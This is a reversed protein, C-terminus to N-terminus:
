SPRLKKGESGVLVYEGALGPELTGDDRLMWPLANSRPVTVVAPVDLTGFVWDWIPTTVGHNLRPRSFHHHLHHRRAWRGYAGFGRHTHLRRHIAEYAVYTLAFGASAALGDLGFARYLPAGTAALVAAAAIAKKWTPAFWTVTAHHKLHEVSFPNKAGRRHGLGRHLVYEALTWTFAGVILAVLWSM